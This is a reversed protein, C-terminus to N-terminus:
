ENIRRRLHKLYASLRLLPRYRLERVSREWLPPPTKYFEKKARKQGHFDDLHHQNRIRLIEGTSAFALKNMLVSNLWPKYGAPRYGLIAAAAGFRPASDIIGQQLPAFYQDQACEAEGIADDTRRFVLEYGDGDLRYGDLTPHPARCAEEFVDRAYFVTSGGLDFRDRDYVLGKIHNRDSTPYPFQRTAAFLM